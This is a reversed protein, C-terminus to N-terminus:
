ARAPHAALLATLEGRMETLASREDPTVHAATADDFASLVHQEGSHIAALVDGDIDDVMARAGVVVRNVTGIFSGDTDPQHGKAVLLRALRDAHRAHLARFAEATPRFSTDAKEVMKAYGSATDVTRTHVSAIAAVTDEASDSQSEVSSASTM